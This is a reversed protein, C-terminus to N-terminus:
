CCPGNSVTVQTPISMDMITIQVMRMTMDGM